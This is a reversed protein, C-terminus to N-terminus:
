DEMLEDIYEKAQRLASERESYMGATLHDDYDFQCARTEDPLKITVKYQVNARMYLKINAGKHQINDLLKMKYVEKM